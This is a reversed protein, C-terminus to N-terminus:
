KPPQLCTAPPMLASLRTISRIMLAPTSTSSMVGCSRVPDVVLDARTAFYPVDPNDAVLEELVVERLLERKYVKVWKAEGYQAVPKPIPPPPPVPAVIQFVVQPALGPQAPPVLIVVPQPIQVKPGSFRMLQGPNTPDEVLWYYSTSTPNPLGYYGVVVGYHDCGVINTLVCSHGYTPQFTAPVTTSVTFRQAAADYASSWRVVLGGAVPVFKAAGYRTANFVYPTSTSPM